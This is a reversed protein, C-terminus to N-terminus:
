NQRRVHPQCLLPLSETKSHIYQVQTPPEPHNQRRTDSQKFRGEM